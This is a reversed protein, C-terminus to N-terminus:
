RNQRIRQIVKDNTLVNFNGVDAEYNLFDAWAAVEDRAQFQHMTVDGAAKDQFRRGARIFLFQRLDEPLHDYDLGVILTVDTISTTFSTYSRTTTDYVRQGRQTLTADTYKFRLVNPELFIEGSTTPFLEVATETNFSWGKAQVRRSEQILLNYALEADVFGGTGLSAVPSEGISALIANV